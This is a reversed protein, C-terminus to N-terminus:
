GASVPARHVIEERLHHEHLFVFTEAREIKRDRRKDTDTIFRARCERFFGDILYKLPQVPEQM